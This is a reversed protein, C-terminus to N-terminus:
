SEHERRTRLIGAFPPAHLALHAAQLLGQPLSQAGRGHDHTAPVVTQVSDVSDLLCDLLQLLVREAVVVVVLDVAVVVVVLLGADGRLGM